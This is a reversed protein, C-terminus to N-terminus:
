QMAKTSIEGSDLFTCLIQHLMTLRCVGNPLSLNILDRQPVKLKVSKPINATLKNELRVGGRKKKTIEEQWGLFEGDILFAQKWKGEKM